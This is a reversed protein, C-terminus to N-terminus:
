DSQNTSRESKSEEDTSNLYNFIKEMTPDEIIAPLKSSRDKAVTTETSATQLVRVSKGEVEKVTYFAVIDLFAAVEDKVKGSLMPKNTIYGKTQNKESNVLATFITNLPLDRFRRVVKRVQEININWEQIQPIESTLYMGNNVDNLIGEMSVKQLETLSDIIVTNYEHAGTYLQNYILEIENWKTIRIVDVNSYPSNRLSYTGGEVDLILVKRLDPVMDASGALVTKGTGSNGYIMMNIYPPQDIVKRVPLGAIVSNVTM